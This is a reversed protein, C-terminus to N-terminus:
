PNCSRRCHLTPPCRPPPPLRASKSTVMPESPRRDGLDPMENIKEAMQVVTLQHSILLREKLRQYPQQAPPQTVLDAVLTLADYSLTNAAHM